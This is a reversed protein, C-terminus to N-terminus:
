LMSDAIFLACLPRGCSSNRDGIIARGVLAHLKRESDQRSVRRGSVAARGARNERIVMRVDPWRTPDVRVADRVVEAKASRAVAPTLVQEARAILEELHHATPVAVSFPLDAV